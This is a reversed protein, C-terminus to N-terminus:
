PGGAGDARAYMSKVLDICGRANTVVFAATVPKSVGARAQDRRRFHFIVLDAVSKRSTIKLLDGIPWKNEIRAFYTRDPHRWLSVIYGPAIALVSEQCAGGALPQPPKGPSIDYATAAFLKLDSRKDGSKTAWERLDV